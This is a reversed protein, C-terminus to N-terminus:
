LIEQNPNAYLQQLRIRAAVPNVDFIQSVALEATRRKGDPLVEIGLLGRVELFPVM